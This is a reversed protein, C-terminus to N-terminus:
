PAPPYLAPNRFPVLALIVAHEYYALRNIVDGTLLGVAGNDQKSNVRGFVRDDAEGLEVGQRVLDAVAEPLFFMGTRSEGSRERDLVVAWAFCALRGHLEQCGGEIGVWYDAGPEAAQAARARNLAGWRTEADSMPQAGVGSAVDRGRARWDQHPFLRRFGALAAQVKVPNHSAVILDSM